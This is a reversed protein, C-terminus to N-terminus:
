NKVSMIDSLGLTHAGALLIIEGDADNFIQEVVGSIVDAEGSATEGVFSVEKGILSAAYNHEVTDLVMAFNSNMSELQELQSFQTLQAAMESNDMPELPNQNQLQTVLLKMYDMQIKSSSATAPVNM